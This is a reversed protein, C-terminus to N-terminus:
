ITNLKYFRGAEIFKLGSTKIGHANNIAPATFLHPRIVKAQFPSFCAPFVPAMCAPPPSAAGLASLKPLKGAYLPVKLEMSLESERCCGAPTGVIHTLSLFSVPSLHFFFLFVRLIDM